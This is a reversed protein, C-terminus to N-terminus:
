IEKLGCSRTGGLRAIPIVLEPRPDSQTDFWQLCRLYSRRSRGERARISEQDKGELPGSAHKRRAM